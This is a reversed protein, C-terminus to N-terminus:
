LVTVAVRDSERNKAPAGQLVTEVIKLLETRTFPKSLFAGSNVLEAADKQCEIYGSAYIIKVCPHLALVQQALDLGRIQPLVMDTLLVNLEKGLKAAIELAQKGDRAAFVRYGAAALFEATMDRVTDEDEAILICESRVCAPTTQPKTYVVDAPAASAPLYIEFHAGRGPESDLWIFGGSQKVVGYVTALGLGTGQGEDKTTFFPEFIHAQTEASIGCGTDSVTFLVYSGPELPARCRALEEGVTINCTELLLKGGRPMADRANVVLNMIMQEIQSPDAKISALAGGPRFTMEIDERILRRLLKDMDAIVANLDLVNPRLVQKRSFILLQRTLSAARDATRAIQQSSSHLPDNPSIKELLIDSHGKIVTLLNNFDHAVGGALRGMAEMRQSQRLRQELEERQTQNKLLTRRMRDFARTVQAVEDNGQAGLPYDFNGEELAHVGGVLSALPRMFMDSILFVLAAGALVAIVLLGLLLRNLRGLFAVGEDYSKLVMLRIAPGSGAGAPSLDLSAAVYRHNGVLVQQPLAADGLHQALDREDFPSLTSVIPDSGRLFVVQSSSIRHLENAAVFDIERGVVVTGIHRNSSGNAGDVPRLVVQYLSTGSFWWASTKHRALSRRLLPEAAGATFNGLTTHLAIVKGQPDALLFLNCDESQWPDESADQITTPDDDRMLALTALLDAKHELAIENQHEMVQFTLIANASEERIQRNIQVGAEHGVVLLTACTLGSTVLILSLLFKTRLRFGSAFNYIQDRASALWRTDWHAGSAGGRLFSAARPRPKKATHAPPMDEPVLIDAFSNAM